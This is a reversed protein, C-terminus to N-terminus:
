SAGVSTRVEDILEELRGSSVGAANAISAILARESDALGESAFAVGLAVTLGEEVADCDLLIEAILRARAQVGVEGMVDLSSRMLHRVTDPGMQSGLLAHYLYRLMELESEDVKGDANVVLTGLDIVPTLSYGGEAFLSCLSEVADRIVPHPTM